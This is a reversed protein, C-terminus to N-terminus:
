CTAPRLHNEKGGGGIREQRTWGQSMEQLDTAHCCVVYSSSFVSTIVVCGTSTLYQDFPLYVKKPSPERGLGKLIPPHNM